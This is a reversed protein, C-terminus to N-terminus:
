NIFNFRGQELFDRAFLDDGSISPLGAVIDTYPKVLEKQVEAIEGGVETSNGAAVGVLKLLGAKIEADGSKEALKRLKRLADADGAARLASAPDKFTDIIDYEAMSPSTGRFRLEALRENLRRLIRQLEIYHPTTERPGLYLLDITGVSQISLTVKVSGGEEFSYSSNSIRYRTTTKLADLFKGFSNNSLVGGDPHSWGHTIDLFTTGYLDPRVFVAAERLRSREHITIELKGTTFSMTGGQLKTSLSLTGLSAFPRFRDVVPVFEPGTDGLNALTQPTTFLEIGSRIGEGLELVESRVKTAAGRLMATDASGLSSPNLYGHLTLAPAVTGSAKRLSVIELNIFPVCKSFELTPIANMFIEVAGTDKTTPGMYPNNVLTVYLNPNEVTPKDSLDGTSVQKMLPSPKPTPKTKFDSKYCLFKFEQNYVTREWGSSVKNWFDAFSVSGNILNAIHDAVETGETYDIARNYIGRNAEIRTEADGGALLAREQRSPVLKYSQDIFAADTISQFYKALERVARTVIPSRPM